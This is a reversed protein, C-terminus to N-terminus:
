LGTVQGTGTYLTLVVTDGNRSRLTITYSAAASGFPYRGRTDFYAANAPVTAGNVPHNALAPFTVDADSFSVTNGLPVAPCATVVPWSNTAVNFRCVRYSNLAPDFLVFRPVGENIAAERSEKLVEVVERANARIEQRQIYTTATPITIALLIAVVFLSVMLEILTMGAQDAARKRISRLM